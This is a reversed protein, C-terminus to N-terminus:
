ELAGKSGQPDLHPNEQITTGGYIFIQKSLMKAVWLNFHDIQGAYAIFSSESHLNIYEGILSQRVEDVEGFVVVEVQRVSHNFENVESSCAGIDMKNSRVVM